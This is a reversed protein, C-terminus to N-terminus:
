LPLIHNVLCLMKESRRGNILYVGKKRAYLCIVSLLLLSSLSILNSNCLTNICICIIMTHCVHPAKSVLIYEVRILSVAKVDTSLHDIPFKQYQSSLLLTKLTTCQEACNAKIRWQYSFRIWNSKVQMYKEKITSMNLDSSWHLSLFLM